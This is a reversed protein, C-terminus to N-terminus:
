QDRRRRRPSQTLGYAALLEDVSTAPASEATQEDDAVASPPATRAQPQEPQQYPSQQSQGPQQYPSQPAAAAPESMATAFEPMAVAPEPM